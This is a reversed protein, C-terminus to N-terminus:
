KALVSEYLPINFKKICQVYDAVRVCNELDYRDVGQFAYIEDYLNCSGEVLVFGTTLDIGVYIPCGQWFQEQNKYLGEGDGENKIIFAIPNPQSNLPLKQRYFENKLVTETVPSLYKEEFYEELSYKNKLYQFVESGEKRNPQIKDKFENYTAQWEKLKEKSGPGFIM